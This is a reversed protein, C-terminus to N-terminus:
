AWFIIEFEPECDGVVRMNLTHGFQTSGKKFLKKRECIRGNLSLTGGQPGGSGHGDSGFSQCSEGIM